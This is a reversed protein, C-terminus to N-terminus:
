LDTILRDTGMEPYVPMEQSCEEEPHYAGELESLMKQENKKFIKTHELLM